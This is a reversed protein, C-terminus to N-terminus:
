PVPTAARAEFATPEVPLTARDFRYLTGSARDGILLEGEATRGFTSISLGSGAIELRNDLLTGQADYALSWLNGSLFDGYFYRGHVPGCNACDLTFVYGGTVSQGGPTEGHGYDLLPAAFASLDCDAGPPYCQTGEVENWGYNGGSEVVDIEERENQGVDGALLLGDPGFSFRFPNRFGYAFIEDCGSADGVFPNGAPITYGAGPDGCDPPNGNGSGGGDVDLRLMSALLTTPDQGNENPDGSSGGDGLGVYLLGDEPGFQLQGANHNAFPQAVDLLVQESGPVDAAGADFEAIHTVLQGGETATYNVFFRGNAAFDPHFALGLLGREGGSTVQGAIDLFVSKQPDDADPDFVQIRGPQEVVFLRGDPTSQVDTIADFTLGPFAPELALDQAEAPGTTEETCGALLFLLALAAPRLTATRM